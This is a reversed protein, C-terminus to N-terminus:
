ELFMIELYLSEMIWELTGRAKYNTIESEIDAKAQRRERRHTLRKTYRGRDWWGPLRKSGM